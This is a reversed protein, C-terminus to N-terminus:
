KKSDKPHCIVYVKQLLVKNLELIQELLVLALILYSLPHPHIKLTKVGAYVITTM